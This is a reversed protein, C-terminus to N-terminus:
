PAYEKPIFLNRMEQNKAEKKLDEYWEPYQWLNDQNNTFEEYDKERPYIYEDMFAELRENIEKAKDSLEFGM